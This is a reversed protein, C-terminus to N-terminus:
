RSFVAQIFSDIAADVLDPTWDAAPLPADRREGGQRRETSRKVGIVAADARAEFALWADMLVPDGDSSEARTLLRATMVVQAGDELVRLVREVRTAERTFRDPVTAGILRAAEDLRPAILELLVTECVRANAHQRERERSRAEAQRAQAARGSEVYRDLISQVNM